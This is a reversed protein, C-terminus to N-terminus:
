LGKSVDEPVLMNGGVEKKMQEKSLEDISTLPTITYTPCIASVRINEDQLNGLSRSFQIVGSKTAAYVPNYPMPFIGGMSATNIIVGGNGSKRMARLALM